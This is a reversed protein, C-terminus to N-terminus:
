FHERDQTINLYHWSLARQMSRQTEEDFDEGQEDELPLVKFYMFREDLYKFAKPLDKKQYQVRIKVVVQDDIDEIIGVPM